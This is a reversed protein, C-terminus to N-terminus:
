SRDLMEEFHHRGAKVHIGKATRDRPLVVVATCGAPVVVDMAFKGAHISWSVEVDGHPTPVRGKAWSLDCPQPAILISKFGPSLPKVGLVRESMQVLPTSCWGHSLDGTGWMERFSQTEPVIKWRRMQETGYRGFLGAHDIAQFVWHMFWPQTNLPKEALVREVLAARREQPVLDFLVALLNVHPSYTTIDKDAPLWQYPKVSTQFPKGDQYLEKGPDWLERNFAVATEHRLHAYKEVRAHDGMLAAIESAMWLGHYYLATLYGQGIVAPPHHCEFGGITVWDMFMYNPAESILGNKGRWGEYTDMLGHVYPAMELVLTKDGTYRYYDMLMQLWALSYSTHFNHYNEDKLLWAFKRIDQRALWPQAFAYYNVMSEIVYDGPDSIPEQHNPSDLHHTQLCIQVAWRSVSWLRNLYPDSCEFSGRYDVPQSTFNAGFDEIELPETVHKIEVTYDPAIETLYPFEFYQEGGGLIFTGSRNAQITITAGRGGKLKLTPYGSLVRDFVVRFSTDTTIRRSALGETKLVPYRAEMLPPIESPILPDWVSAQERAAEWASADFGPLRWLAPEKSADYVDPEPYQPAPLCRWSADSLIAHTQGGHAKVEAEFLFGTKGRSVTFGIPWKSFVEASVVNAGKHFFSTLDRYDYFWRRTLGGAYDQGMDVPGRSALRGNIYLLYKMDATLWADVREPADDLIVEKRFLTVATSTGDPPAIWPARWPTPKQTHSQFVYGPAQVSGNEAVARMGYYVIPGRPDPPMEYLSHTMTTHSLLYAAILVPFIM